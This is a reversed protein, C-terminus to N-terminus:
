QLNYKNLLVKWTKWYNKDRKLDKHKALSTLKLTTSDSNPGSIEGVMFLTYGGKKFRISRDEELFIDFEEFKLSEKDKLIQLIANFDSEEIKFDEMKMQTNNQKCSWLCALLIVIIISTRKM